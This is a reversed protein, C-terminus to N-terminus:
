IPKILSNAILDNDFICLRQVFRLGEPTSVMRDLYRGMSLIEPLKDRHTRLVLYNTEAEIVDDEDNKMATILPQSVTHRQYYPAHYITHAAGYVRDRLMAQSEFRLICLPLGADFNERSQIAYVCEPTFLDPWTSFDNSDLIQAYRLHLNLVESYTKFDM